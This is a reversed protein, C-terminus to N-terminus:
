ISPLVQYILHLMSAIGISALKSSHNQKLNSHVAWLPVNQLNTSQPNFCLVPLSLNLHQFSDHSHEPIKPAIFVQKSAPTLPFFPTIIQAHGSVPEYSELHAMHVIWINPSMWFISQAVRQLRFSVTRSTSPFDGRASIQHGMHIDWIDSSM